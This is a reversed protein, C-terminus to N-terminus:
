RFTMTKRVSPLPENLADELHVTVSVTLTDVGHRPRLRFEAVRKAVFGAPVAGVQFRATIDDFRTVLQLNQALGNGVNAIAIEFALTDNRKPQRRIEKIDIELVPEALSQHIEEPSPRDEDPLPISNPNGPSPPAFASAPNFSSSVRFNYFLNNWDDFGTLVPQVAGVPRNQFDDGVAITNCTRNPGDRIFSDFAVVDDGAPTTDLTRNEGSTVCTGDDNLNVTVNMADIQSNCNWDVAGAVPQTARKGNPCTFITALNGDTLGLGVPESLATEDLDRLHDHSFDVLPVQGGVVPIGTQFAYNMVSLYNPKFHVEEGGGHQLGLNHGLEHMFLAAVGIVNRLNRDTGNISSWLFQGRLYAAAGGQHTLLSYHFIRRRRRDFNNVQVNAPVINVQDDAIANGGGLQGYDVHLTIGTSGDPNRVNARAFAAIMQEVVDPVGNGNPDLFRHSHSDGPACGGQACDMWDIELYVDKRLRNPPNNPDLAVLNIDNTTDIQGDNNLDAGGTEWDDLLGDGDSDLHPDVFRFRVDGESSFTPQGRWLAIYEFRNPTPVINQAFAESWAARPNGGDSPELIPSVSITFPHRPMTGDFNILRGDIRSETSGVSDWTVLYQGLALSYAIDPDENVRTSSSADVPIRLGDLSLTAIGGSSVALNVRQGFINGASRWVVLFRGSTAEPSFSVVADLAGLDPAIEFADGVLTGDNRVLQAFVGSEETAGLVVYVVLYLWYETGRDTLSTTYDFAVATGSTAATIGPSSIAFTESAFPRSANSVDLIRGFIRGFKTWTLLYNQGNHVFRSLSPSGLPTTIIDGSDVVVEPGNPSGDANLIRVRVDDTGEGLWAVVPPDAVAKEVRPFIGPHASIPQPAAITRGDTGLLTVNILGTTAHQSVVFFRNQSGQFGVDANGESRSLPPAGSVQDTAPIIVPPAPAPEAHAEPRAVTVMSAFIIFVLRRTSM